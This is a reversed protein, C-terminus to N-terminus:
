NKKPPRKKFLVELYKTNEKNDCQKALDLITYGDEDESYIDNDKALILKLIGLTGSCAAFQLPTRGDFGGIKYDAGRELLMKVMSPSNRKIATFLPIAQAHQNKSIFNPDAGNELLFTAAPFSDNFISITLPTSGYDDLVNIEAGHRVMYKIVALSGRDAAMHLPANHDEVAYVFNMQATSLKSLAVTDCSKIWSLMQGFSVTDCKSTCFLGFALICSILM